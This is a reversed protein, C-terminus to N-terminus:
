YGKSQVRSWIHLVNRCSSRQQITLRCRCTCILGMFEKALPTTAGLVMEVLALPM